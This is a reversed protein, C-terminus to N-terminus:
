DSEIWIIDEGTKVGGGSATYTAYTSLKENGITGASIDPPTTGPYNATFLISKGTEADYHRRSQDSFTGLWYDNSSSISTSIDGTNWSGAVPTIEPSDDLLVDGGTKDYIVM